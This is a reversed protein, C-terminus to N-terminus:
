DFISSHSIPIYYSQNEQKGILLAVLEWSNNLLASGSDWSEVPTISSLLGSYKFAGFTKNSTYNELVISIRKQGILLSYDKDKKEGKHGSINIQSYQTLSQPFSVLALDNQSDIKLVTGTQTTGDFFVIRSQSGLKDVVHAATIIQTNNLIFWRGNNANPNKNKEWLTNTDSGYTIM